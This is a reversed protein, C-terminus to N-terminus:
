GYGALKKLQAKRSLPKLPHRIERRHQEWNEWADRFAPTDLEAPIAVAEEPEDKSRLSGREGGEPPLPPNEGRKEERPLAGASPGTVGAGNGSRQKNGKCVAARKATLAREKASQSNHAGWKPITVGDDAVVLWGAKAIAQAFGPVGLYRDIWA